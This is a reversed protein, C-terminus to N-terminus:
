EHQKIFNVNYKEIDNFTNWVAEANNTYPHYWPQEQFFNALDDRTFRYGHWAYIFNRWIELDRSTMGELDSETLYIKDLQYDIDDSGNDHLSDADEEAITEDDGIKEITDKSSDASDDFDRESKIVSHTDIWLDKKDSNLGMILLGILVLAAVSSVVAIIKWKKHNPTPPVPLTKDEHLVTDEANQTGDVDDANDAFQNVLTLMEGVSQYRFRTIPAMAKCVINEMPKPVGAQRLPQLPLGNNLVYSAEPPVMGTLMKYMTAGLAYVDITVPLSGERLSNAQEIPAYGVTGLGITTSEEPEGNEDYQKSLGFDILKVVGKSNIMINKPKLDLHVMRNDHMYQLAACVQRTIKATQSPSVRGNMKIMDDITGGDIYEMVYYATNNEEFVDLVNVINEHHLRSLNNAERIFKRKYDRVIQSDTHEITKENTNRTNMAGMFFEKITVDADVNLYGLEGSLSATVSALYTIGFSGKGLTKVITYKGQHLTTGKKLFTM